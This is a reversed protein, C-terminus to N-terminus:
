RRQRRAEQRDIEIQVKAMAADLESTDQPPKQREIKLQTSKHPDGPKCGNRQCRDWISGIFNCFPALGAPNSGRVVASIEAAFECPHIESGDIVAPGAKLMSDIAASIREAAHLPLVWNKGASGKPRMADSAATFIQDSASQERPSLEIGSLSPGAAAASTHIVSSSSLSSSGDGQREGLDAGDREGRPPKTFTTPQNETTFRTGEGNKSRKYEDVVLRACFWIPRDTAAILTVPEGFKRAHRPRFLYPEQIGSDSGKLVNAETLEQLLEVPAGCATALATLKMRFVGYEDATHLLCIIDMWVGRAAFSCARLALDNRWDAPYFQFSPLSPM